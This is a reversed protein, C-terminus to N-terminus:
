FTLTLEDILKQYKKPMKNYMTITHGSSWASIFFERILITKKNPADHLILFGLGLSGEEIQTLTGGFDNVYKDILNECAQLTYNTKM